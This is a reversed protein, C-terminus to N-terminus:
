SRLLRAVVDGTGPGADTWAPVQDHYRDAPGAYEVLLVNPELSLIRSLAATPTMMRAVLAPSLSRALVLGCDLSAIPKPRSSAVSWDIGRCFSGVFWDVTPQDLLRLRLLENRIATDIRRRRPHRLSPYAEVELARPDPGSMDLVLLTYSVNRTRAPLPLGCWGRRLTWGQEIVPVALELRRIPQPM